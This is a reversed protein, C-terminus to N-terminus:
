ILFNQHLVKFDTVLIPPIYYKHPVIQAPLSEYLYFYSETFTLLFAQQSYDIDDIKKHIVVEQGEILHLVDDCCDPQAVFTEKSTSSCPAKPCKEVQAFVASDVLFGGCFHKKVTFSSTSLLILIALLSSFFRHLFKIKM